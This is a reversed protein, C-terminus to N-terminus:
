KGGSLLSYLRSENLARRVGGNVTLKGDQLGIFGLERFVSLCFAFQKARIGSKLTSLRKYYLVVNRNAAAPNSTIASYYAAFVTRDTSIGDYIRMDSKEPIYIEASCLANLRKIVGDSPPVDTFVIRSYNNLEIASMDPSVILGSYNNAESKTMYDCTVFRGNMDLIRKLSVGDACVFLTGYVSSPLLDKLESEKYTRYKASDSNGFVAAYGIFNARAFEDNIVPMNAGVAKIYGTVGGNLGESLELVIDKSGGGVLFQNKNYFNFAYAQLAGIQVSTHLPNRCPAIRVNDTTIRLLPKANGNGTPEISQLANFLSINCEGAGVELDYETYPLFYEEPLTSLYENMRKKFAPINEEKLSFGAAGTHGGFETLLDACYSLAEFINVNKIGRATGKYIGEENKDVIIFAPRNYEASLRAAAIGTVGKAWAPNCLIIARDDTLDEYALDGVAEEYIADCLEKRRENDADIEAILESIKKEDPSTLIEFARYADGMRGAANIRPAIKYAIDTSTVAGGLGNARLLMKLGLNFVGSAITKLGLQVILRNENLLPVLDAITAVAAIDLFEKYMDDGTLAQVFKLAVGAGCLYKDPYGDGEQKPNVVVCDPIERGPEHHDTVIIDVGLDICHEVEAIGSIGCDCTVILDPNHEEILREISNVNLGYGDTVRSPIHVIVDSGLSKFCLALIASACVGDADYDGYVVITEGDNIAQRVREVAERMGKMLFPDCLVSAEPDLFARVAEKGQIGRSFLLEVLRPHLRLEESVSKVYEKDPILESKRKLVTNM